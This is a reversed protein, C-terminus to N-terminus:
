KHTSLTEVIADICLQETRHIARDQLKSAIASTIIASALAGIIFPVAINELLTARKYVDKHNPEGYLRKIEETLSVNNKQM